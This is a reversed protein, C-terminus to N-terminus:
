EVEAMTRGYDVLRQQAAEDDPDMAMMYSEYFDAFLESYDGSTDFYMRRKERDINICPMGESYQIEM